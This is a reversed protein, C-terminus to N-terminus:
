SKMIGSGVGIVKQPEKVVSAIAILVIERLEGLMMSQNFFVEGEVPVFHISEIRCFVLRQFLYVFHDSVSKQTLLKM